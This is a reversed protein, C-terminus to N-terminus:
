KLSKHNSKENFPHLIYPLSLFELLVSIYKKPHYLSLAAMLSLGGVAVVVLASFVIIIM